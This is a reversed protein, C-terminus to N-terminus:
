LKIDDWDEPPERWEKPDLKCCDNCWRGIYRIPWSSIGNDSSELHSAHFYQECNYCQGHPHLLIDYGNEATYFLPIETVPCVVEEGDGESRAERLGEVNWNNNHDLIRPKKALDGKTVPPTPTTKVDSM